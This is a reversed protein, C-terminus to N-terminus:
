CNGVYFCAWSFQLYRMGVCVSPCSHEYYKNSMFALHHCSGLHGNVLPPIFLSHYMICQSIMRGHFPVFCYYMSYCPHGPFTNHKIVSALCLLGCLIHNWNCSTGPILLDTSVSLLTTTALLQPLFFPSHSSIPVPKRKPAPFM